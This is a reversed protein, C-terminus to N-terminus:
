NEGACAGDRLVSMGNQAAICANPYTKDDCGCVPAYEYTCADPRQACRGSADARGCIAGIEYNCFLGEGCVPAPGVRFGGCSEGVKAVPAECPGKSKVSVGAQAASCANGYTQGDCGCVPRYLQICADPKRTCVGSQDTAGCRAELSYACYLGEDCRVGRLGGCLEGNQADQPLKLDSAPFGVEEIAVDKPEEGSGTTCGAALLGVLASAIHLKQM